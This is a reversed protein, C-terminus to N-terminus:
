VNTSRRRAIGAAVVGAAGTFLMLVSSPEPIPSIGGPRAIFANVDSSSGGALGANYVYGRGGKMYFNGYVPARNSTFTIASDPGASLDEFKIGFLTIGAPWGPTSGGTSTWARIEGTIDHGDISAGSICAADADCGDALEFIAYGVNPSKFNSFTYTYRWSGPSLSTINWSLSFANWGENGGATLQSLAASRTGDAIGAASTNYVTDGWTLTMTAAFILFYRQM